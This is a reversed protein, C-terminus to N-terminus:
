QWIQYLWFTVTRWTIYEGREWPRGPLRASNRESGLWSLITGGGSGTREGNPLHHRHSLSTLNLSVSTIIIHSEPFSAHYYHSIWPFQRSLLIRVCITPPLHRWLIVLKHFQITLKYGYILCIRSTVFRRSLNM